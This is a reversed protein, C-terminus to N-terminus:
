LIKVCIFLWEPFAFYKIKLRYKTPRIMETVNFKPALLWPKRHLDALYLFYPKQNGSKKEMDFNFKQM